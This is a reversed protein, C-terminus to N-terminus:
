DGDRGGPKWAATEELPIEVSWQGPAARAPIPEALLAGYEARTVLKAGLQEVWGALTQHDVTAFGWRELHHYLSVIGVKSADNATHFMSLASFVPGTTLGFLGGVLEGDANRVEVSHAHGRDHLELYISAIKPTLWTLHPRGPRRAACGILVSEFARDFEVTFGSSKLTRRFRKGLHVDSIRMVARNAPSWWKLPGVHAWPIFGREGAALIAESSTDRVFGAFGIPDRGIDAETPLAGRPKNLGAAIDVLQGLRKARLSYALGLAQREAWQRPTETLLTRREAAKRAAPERRIEGSLTLTSM